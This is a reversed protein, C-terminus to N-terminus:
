LVEKKFLWNYNRCILKFEEYTIDLGLDKYLRQMFYELERDTLDM